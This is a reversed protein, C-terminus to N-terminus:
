QTSGSKSRGLLRVCDGLITFNDITSSWRSKIIRKLAGLQLDADIAFCEGVERSKLHKLVSLKGLQNQQVIFVSTDLPECNKVYYLAESEPYQSFFTEDLEM